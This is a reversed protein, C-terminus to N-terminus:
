KDSMCLLQETFFLEDLKESHSFMQPLNKLWQSKNLCTQIMHAPQSNRKVSLDTGMEMCKGQSQEHNDHLAICDTIEFMNYKLQREEPPASWILTSQCHGKMQISMCQSKKSLSSHLFWRTCNWNNSLLKGNLPREKKKKNQPIPPFPALTERTRQLVRVDQLERTSQFVRAGQSERTGM